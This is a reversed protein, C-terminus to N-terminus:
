PIRVAGQRLVEPPHTVCSVLTSAQTDPAEGGDIYLDIAEDFYAWAEDCNRAPPSGQPNASPAYVPEALSGALLRLFAHDPVRFAITEWGFPHDRAPLVLTLAGPWLCALAEPPTESVWPLLMERDAALAPLRKEQHRGKLAYVRRLAAASSWASFIGYVTDTPGAVLGGARLVSCAARACEELGDEALSLEHRNEPTRLKREILSAEKAAASRLFHGTKQM